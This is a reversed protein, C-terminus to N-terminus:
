DTDRRNGSTFTLKSVDATDKSLPSFNTIRFPDMLSIQEGAGTYHSDIVPPWDFPLIESAQFSSITGTPTPPESDSDSLDDTEVQGTFFTSTTSRTSSSRISLSSLSM